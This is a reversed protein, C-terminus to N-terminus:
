CLYNVALWVDSSVDSDLFYFSTGSEVTFFCDLDIIAWCPIEGLTYKERV